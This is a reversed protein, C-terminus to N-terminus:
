TWRAPSGKLLAEDNMQCGMFGRELGRTRSCPRLRWIGHLQRCPSIQLGKLDTSDILPDASAHKPAPPPGKSQGRRCLCRIPSHSLHHCWCPAGARHPLYPVPAALLILCQITCLVDVRRCSRRRTRPSAGPRHTLTRSCGLSAGVILLRAPLM